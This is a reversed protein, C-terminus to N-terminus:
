TYQGPGSRPWFRAAVPTSTTTRPEDDNKITATASAHSIVYPLSPTALHVGITENAEKTKDGYVPISIYNVTSTKGYAANVSFTVVGGTNKYDIGTKFASGGRATGGSLTYRVTVTITSNGSLTVPVKLYHVGSNGESMTANGVSISRVPGSTACQAQLNSWGAAVAYGSVSGDPDGFTQCIDAIEAGAPPPLPDYWSLPPGWDTVLGVDPDTISEILEHSAASTLADQSGDQCAATAQDPLVVYRVNLSNNVFTNHYACTNTATDVGGTSTIDTVESPFFLVCLTNADPTPLSSGIEAALDPQIDTEDDLTGSNGHAPTITTMGNWTGRGIMQGAVSYESLMDLYSSNTVKTYFDAMSPASSATIPAAYTGSGWEVGYVKVHTMVNGGFDTLRPLGMPQVGGAAHPRLAGRFNVPPTTGAGAPASALTLAAVGAVMGVALLSRVRNM